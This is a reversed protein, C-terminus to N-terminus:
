RSGPIMIQLFKYRNYRFISYCLYSSKQNMQKSINKLLKERAWEHGIYFYWEWGKHGVKKQSWSKYLYSNVCFHWFPFIDVSNWNNYIIGRKFLIRGKMQVSKFMSFIAASTFKIWKNICRLQAQHHKVVM